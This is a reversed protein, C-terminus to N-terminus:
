IIVRLRSMGHLIIKLLDNNSNNNYEGVIM